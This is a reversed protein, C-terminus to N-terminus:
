LEYSSDGTNHQQQHTAVSSHGRWPSLPAVCAQALILSIRPHGITLIGTEAESVLDLPDIGAPVDIVRM